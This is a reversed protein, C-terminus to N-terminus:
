LNGPIGGARPGALGVFIGLCLKKERIPQCAALPSLLILAFTFKFFFNFNFYFNNISFWHVLSCLLFFLFPFFLLFFLLDLVRISSPFLAAVHCSCM